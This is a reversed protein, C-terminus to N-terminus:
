AADGWATAVTLFDSEGELLWLGAATCSSWRTLTAPSSGGASADALLLGGLNDRLEKRLRRQIQHVREQSCGFHDGVERLSMPEEGMLRADVLFRERDDLNTLADAVRKLLV